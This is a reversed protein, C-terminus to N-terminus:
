FQFRNASLDRESMKKGKTANENLIISESGRIVMTGQQFDRKM